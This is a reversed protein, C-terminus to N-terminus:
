AVGRRRIAGGVWELKGGKITRVRVSKRGKQGTEIPLQHEIAQSALRSADDAAMKNEAQLRQAIKQALQEVNVPGAQLVTWLHHIATTRPSATANAVKFENNREVAEEAHQKATKKPATAGAKIAKTVTKVTAKTATKSM